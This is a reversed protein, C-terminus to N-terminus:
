QDIACNLFRSRIIGHIEFVKVTYVYYIYYLLNAGDTDASLKCNSSMAFANNLSRARRQIM